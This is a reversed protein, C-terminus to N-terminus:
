NQFPHNMFKRGQQAPQCAQADRVPFRMPVGQGVSSPPIVPVGAPSCKSVHKMPPLQSPAPPGFYPPCPLRPAREHTCHGFLTEGILLPVVFLSQISRAAHYVFPEFIPPNECVVKAPPCPKPAEPRVVVDVRVQVPQTPNGPLCPQPGCTNPRCFSPACPVPVDVQVTRRIPEVRPTPVCKLPPPCLAPHCGPVGQGQATVSFGLLLGLVSFLSTFRLM